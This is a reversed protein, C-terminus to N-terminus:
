DAAPLAAWAGDPRSDHDHRVLRAAVQRDAPSRRALTSLRRQRRHRAARHRHGSRGPRREVTRWVLGLRALHRARLADLRLRDTRRPPSPTTRRHLEPQRLVRRAPWRAPGDRPRHRAHRHCPGPRGSARSPRARRRGYSHRRPDRHAVDWERQLRRVASRDCRPRDRRPHAVHEQRAAADRAREAAVHDLRTCGRHGACSARAVGRRARRRRCRRVALRLTRPGVQRSPRSDRRQRNRRDPDLRQCIRSLLAPRSGVFDPLDRRARRHDRPPDRGSLRARHLAPRQRRRHRRCRRDRLRRLGVTSPTDRHPARCQGDVPRRQHLQVFGDCEPCRRRIGRPVAPLDRRRPLASRLPDPLQGARWRRRQRCLAEAHHHGRCGRVAQHLCCRTTVDAVSGRRVDGRSPGVARRHRREPGALSDPARRSEASRCCNGPRGTRRPGHGM